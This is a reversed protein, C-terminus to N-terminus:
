NDQVSTTVYESLPLTIIFSAGKGPESEITLLGNHAEIIRRSIALGLGTGRKGRTKPNDIRSFPKFLEAQDKESIGPGQDAVSIQALQETKHYNLTVKIESDSYSYKIANSILNHLVQELKHRDARLSPLEEPTTLKVSLNNKQAAPSNNSIVRQSLFVLDIEEYELKLKGSDIQSYDLLNRVLSLMHRGSDHILQIFNKQQDNLSGLEQQDNILLDSLGIISSLSNGLDHAAMGMMENKLSTLRSLDANNKYLNRQAASLENNLQTLQTFVTEDIQPISELNETIRRAEILTEISEPSTKQQSLLSWYFKRVDTPSKAGILLYGETLKISLFNIPQPENHVELQFPVLYNGPDGAADLLGIASKVNQAFLNDTLDFISTDPDQHSLLNLDDCYVRNITCDFNLLVATGYCTNLSDAM